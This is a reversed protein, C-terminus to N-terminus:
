DMTVQMIHYDLASIYLFKQILYGSTGEKQLEEREKLHSYNIM